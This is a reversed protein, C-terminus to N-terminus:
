TYIPWQQCLYVLLCVKESLSSQCVCLDSSQSLWPLNLKDEKSNLSNAPSSSSYVISSASLWYVSMWHPSCLHINWSIQSPDLTDGRSVLASERKANERRMKKDMWIEVCLCMCAFTWVELSVSLQLCVCTGMRDCVCVFVFVCTESTYSCLGCVGYHWMKCMLDCM